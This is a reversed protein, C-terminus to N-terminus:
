DFLDGQRRGPDPPPKQGLRELLARASTPAHGSYHNNFFGYVQRLGAAREAIWDAWDRIEKGRDVQVESFSTIERSGLWRIYSFDATVPRYDEGKAGVGLTWAMNLSSLLELTREERWDRNRLEVAYRFDVPLTKLYAELIAFNEVAAFGAPFQILFPGLRDGLRSMRKLFTRTPDGCGLLGREHTIERPFKACFRFNEPVRESWTEVASPRPLAYFTSDIEVTGFVSAYSGLYGSPRLGLPYFNGEWDKYSWGSTGVFVSGGGGESRDKFFEEEDTFEERRWDRDPKGEQTM